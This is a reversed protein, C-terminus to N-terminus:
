ENLVLQELLYKKLSSGEYVKHDDTKPKGPAYYYRGGRPGTHWVVKIKKKQGPNEPDDVEAEGEEGKDDGLSKQPETDKEQDPTTSSISVVVKMSQPMNKKHDELEKKTEEITKQDSDDEAKKLKEQLEKEKGEYEQREKASKTAIEQQKKVADEREEPTMKKLNETATKETEEIENDSLATKIGVDNLAKDPDKGSIEKMRQGMQDFPVPNGDGDVSSQRLLEIASKGNPDKTNKDAQDLLAYFAKRDADKKLREQEEKEQKEREKDAKEQEKKKKREERKEATWGFFQGIGGFFQGMGKGAEGAWATIAPKAALAILGIALLTLSENIPQSQQGALYQKLTKQREM